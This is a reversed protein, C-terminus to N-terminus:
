KQRVYYGYTENAVVIEKQKAYSSDRSLVDARIERDFAFSECIFFSDQLLIQKIAVEYTNISSFKLASSDRLKLHNNWGLRHYIINVGQGVGFTEAPIECQLSHVDSEFQQTDYAGAHYRAFFRIPDNITQVAYCVCILLIM